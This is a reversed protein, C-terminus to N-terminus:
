SGTASVSAVQELEAQQALLASQVSLRAVSVGDLVKTLAAQADEWVSRVACSTKRDCGRAGEVCTNLLIPGDVSEIVRLLSVADAPVALEFGGGSGRQSILLGSIVLRQLVKSLFTEPADSLEVLAHRQVRTGPPLGAMHVMVRVAYDAARTVQM